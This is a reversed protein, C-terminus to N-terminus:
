CGGCVRSEGPMAQIWLLQNRISLDFRDIPQLHVPMYPPIDALWSGDEHVRPEGLIAAGEHMTLGFRGVAGIESSFGEIVRVRQADRLAKSLPVGGGFQAGQVSEDLSTNRVDISGITAPTNVDYAGDVVSQLVPPEPRPVV